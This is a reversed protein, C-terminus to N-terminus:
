KIKGLVNRAKQKIRQIGNDVAKAEKDLKTAIEKYDMGMIHHLLIEKEFESLKDMLYESFSTEMEKGIYIREPNENRNTVIYELDLNNYEQEDGGHISLYTNLPMHKKRAAAEIATYMQRSVCVRAFTHFSAESDMKYERVAKMLGIMGEQFLDDHEGGQIFLKNAEVRVLEKYRELIIDFVDVGHRLLSILEEDKLEIMKEYKM